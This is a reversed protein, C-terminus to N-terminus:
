LPLIQLSILRSKYDSSYDNLIYKTARRQVRELTTIDKILNPRWIPSCYTLKPIVLSLFLLKKTKIPTSVPFARRLLGISQYSKAVISDIHKSWSLDSEFIVGLDRIISKRPITQGNIYYSSVLPSHRKSCFTILSSKELNFSLRSNVSWQYISNLEEQLTDCDDFSEVIKSCKSDDAFLYMSSLNAM